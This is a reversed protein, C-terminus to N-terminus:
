TLGELEIAVESHDPYAIAIDFDRFFGYILTAAYRDSGIYVAPTARLAVLRSKVEDIRENPILFSWRATDAYAREVVMYNGWDDREKRSFDQIGLRPSALIADSLSHLRGFVMSGVSVVSGGTLTVTVEAKRYSPLGQVILATKAPVDEFFWAYWNSESIRGQMSETRDFVTGDDADVMQVRVSDAAVNFLALGTAIGPKATVAISDAASSLTGVKDDFMRWRNTAGLDLWEVPNDQPPKNTSAALAEYMRHTSLVIVRDGTAYTTASSWQAYDTEPISSAILEADTIRSPSIIKM